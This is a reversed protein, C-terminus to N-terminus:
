RLSSGTTASCVLSFFYREGLVGLRWPLDPIRFDLFKRIGRESERQVRRPTKAIKALSM